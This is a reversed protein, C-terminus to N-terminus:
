QVSGKKTPPFAPRNANQLAKIAEAGERKTEERAQRLQDETILGAKVLCKELAIVELRLEFWDRFLEDVDIKPLKGKMM